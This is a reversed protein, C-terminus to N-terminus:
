RCVSVCVVASWKCEKCESYDGNVHVGMASDQEDTLSNEVQGSWQRSELNEYLQMKFKSQQGCWEYDAHRCPKAQVNWSAIKAKNSTHKIAEQNRCWVYLTMCATVHGWEIPSILYTSWSVDRLPMELTNDYGICCQTGEWSFMTVYVIQSMITETYVVFICIKKYYM